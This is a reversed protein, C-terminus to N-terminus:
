IVGEEYAINLISLVNRLDTSPGPIYLIQLYLNYIQVIKSLADLQGNHLVLRHLKIGAKIHPTVHNDAHNWSPSMISIEAKWNEM